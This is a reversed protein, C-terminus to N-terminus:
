RDHIRSHVRRLRAVDLGGRRHLAGLRNDDEAGGSWVGRVGQTIFMM